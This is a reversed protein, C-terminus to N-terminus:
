IKQQLETFVVTFWLNECVIIILQNPWTSIGSFEVGPVDYTTCVLVLSFIFEAYHLWKYKIDKMNRHFDYLDRCKLKGIRTSIVNKAEYFCM